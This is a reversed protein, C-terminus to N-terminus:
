NPSRSHFMVTGSVQLADSHGIELKLNPVVKIETKYHMTTASKISGALYQTIKTAFQKLKIPSYELNHLPSVRCINWLSNLVYGLVYYNSNYIYSIIFCLTCVQWHMPRIMKTSKFMTLITWQTSTWLCNRCFRLEAGNAPDEPLRYGRRLTSIM